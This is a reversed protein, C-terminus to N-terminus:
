FQRTSRRLVLVVGVVPAVAPHLRAPINAPYPYEAAHHILAFPGALYMLEVHPSWHQSSVSLVGISIHLVGVYNYRM